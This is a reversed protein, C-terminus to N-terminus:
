TRYKPKEPAGAKYCDASIIRLSQKSTKFKELEKECVVELHYKGLTISKYNHIGSPSVGLFVVVILWWM